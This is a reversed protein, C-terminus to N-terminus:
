GTCNSLEIAQRSGIVTIRLDGRNMAFPGHDAPVVDAVGTIWGGDRQTVAESVWIMPDRHEVVLTEDSGTAPVQARVTVRLGDRIPEITCTVNGAGAEAATLPRDSLAAAIAGDRAGSPSLVGSIDVSIPMCVDQCVGLDLRGAVAAQGSASLAFELPLIVDGEYGISRLGNSFFVQPRPWHIAMGSVGDAQTLRLVTPVGGDGPARWYTKWGPALRIRIAAMHSDGDLRYGPLLTIEVVEDASFFQANAPLAGLLSLAAATLIRAFYTM